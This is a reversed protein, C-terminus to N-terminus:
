TNTFTSGISNWCLSILSLYMERFGRMPMFLSFARFFHLFYNVTVHFTHAQPFSPNFILTCTWKAEVTYCNEHVLRFDKAHAVTMFLIISSCYM